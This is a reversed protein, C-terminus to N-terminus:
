PVSAHNERKLEDLLPKDHELWLWPQGPPWRWAFVLYAEMGTARWHVFEQHLEAPSPASYWDDSHAQIVGWYRIGLRDAAAAEEDIISYDCGYKISCPYHDLAIVDTAGAFRALQEVKYM